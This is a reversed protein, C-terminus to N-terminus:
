FSILLCATVMFKSCQFLYGNSSNAYNMFGCDDDHRHYIACVCVVHRSSGRILKHGWFDCDDMQSAQQKCCRRSRRSHVVLQILLLINKNASGILIVRVCVVVAALLCVLWGALWFALLMLM